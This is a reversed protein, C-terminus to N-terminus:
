CHAKSTRLCHFPLQLVDLREIGHFAFQGRRFGIFHNQATSNQNGVLLDLLQLARVNLKHLLIGLQLRRGVVCVGNEYRIFLQGYLLNGLVVAHRALLEIGNQFFHSDLVLDVFM